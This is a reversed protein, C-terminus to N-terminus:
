SVAPVAAVQDPKATEPQPVGLAARLSALSVELMSDDPERVTLRQFAFGPRRLVRSVPNDTFATLRILEYALAAVLPFFLVRSGIRWWFEEQGPVFTFFVIAVLVVFAIFSTGCRPHYPTMKRTEDITLPGGAEFASIAKHEAGHYQFFRRIEPMLSIAYVYTVIFVGKLLGATVNFLVPNAAADILLGALFAPGAAFLLIGIVASIGITVYIETKTPHKEEEQGALIASRALATYAVSLSEILTAVGRILPLKLLPFRVSPAPRVHREVIITGDPQRVALAWAEPGRMMVGEIAASGGITPRQEPM